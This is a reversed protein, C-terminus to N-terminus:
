SIESELYQINMINDILAKLSKEKLSWAKKYNEDKLRVITKYDQQYKCKREPFYFASLISFYKSSLNNISSQMTKFEITCRHFPLAVADLSRAFENINVDECASCKNLQYLNRISPNIAKLGDKLRVLDISFDKQLKYSSKSYELEQKDLIYEKPKVKGFYNNLEKKVLHEINFNDIRMEIIDKLKNTERVGLKGKAKNLNFYIESFKGNKFVAVAYPDISSQTNSYIYFYFEPFKNVLYKVHDSLTNYINLGYNMLDAENIIFDSTYLILSYKTDIM